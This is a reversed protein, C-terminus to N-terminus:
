KVGAFGFGEREAQWHRVTGAQRREERVLYRSAVWGSAGHHRVVEVWGRDGGAVRLPEGAAFAVVRRTRDAAGARVRVTVSAPAPPAPSRAMATPASENGGAVVPRLPVTHLDAAALLPPLPVQWPQRTTVPHEASRQAVHRATQDVAVGLSAVTFVAAAAVVSLYLALKRTGAARLGLAM